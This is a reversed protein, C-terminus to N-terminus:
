ISFKGSGWCKVRRDVISPSSRSIIACAHHTGVSIASPQMNTGLNVATFNISNMQNPSAGWIASGTDFGLKGSPNDGFCRIIRSADLSNELIGCTSSFQSSDGGTSLAIPVYSASDIGWIIPPLSTGMTGSTAGIDNSNGNGNFQGIGWCKAVKTTLIACSNLSGVELQTVAAIFEAICLGLILTKLKM